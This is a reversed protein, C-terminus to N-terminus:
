EGRQTFRSLPKITWRKSIDILCEGSLEFRLLQIDLQTRYSMVSRYLYEVRKMYEM